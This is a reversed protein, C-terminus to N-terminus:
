ARRVTTRGQGCARGLGRKLDDIPARFEQRPDPRGGQVEIQQIPSTILGKLRGEAARDGAWLAEDAQLMLCSAMHANFQGTVYRPDDVLFWHNPFLAGIVEGIKTKGTGRKGRLVLAVGTRERPRQVMNAFFGFVWDYLAQDGGCVNNLLHDRFTKYHQPDPNAAPKFAFGSWLNLYGPTGPANNPDPFFEIGFYQRRDRSQLWRNAWTTVYVKGDAGRYETFRNAFWAKFADISLIRKQDEVTADPREHYVVARAGLLVLAFESNMGEMSFGLDRPERPPRSGEDTTKGAGEGSSAQRKKKKLFQVVKAAAPEVQQTAPQHDTAQDPQPESSPVGAIAAAVLASGAPRADPAANEPVDIKASEAVLLVPEEIPTAGEIAAVVRAGAGSRLEDNFDGDAASWATRITRGPAALRKSARCLACRTTFGDSDGDGLLVVDTASAPLTLGGGAAHPDPGPVRRTRGKADKLTPHSVVAAAKGALNGLAVSSWFAVGALDRDAQRLACWASLVTEIGEGVLHRTAGPADVLRIANGGQSGRVKKSPLVEGSEPDVVIAKGNPLDLDIWTIHVGRFTGTDSIIPALMAPGRWIVRPAKRGFENTEEGHFFAVIPAYRLQLREPLEIIGRCRRLYDEVPTGHWREGSHWIDFATRRERERFENAEVQRENKRLERERELEAAREASPETAGGLLKLAELFDARPDLGHRLAVLRLVDGGDHCVACVWGEADCEFSTSNRAEPDASHLPCPGVFKKGRKRLKVWQSATADCPNRLKLDAIASASITM